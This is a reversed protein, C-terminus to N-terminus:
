ALKEKIEAAVNSPVEDYHNFFMSYNARGQTFSRLQNVYGFMNALPVMSEVVQANGRSDTGQIQGRRSNMDGIVDGLYEEPSVVEVKMIPELLKIGAKQAAERMGARGAIEFALASSDVDHYAGDYLTIEFDIIPFGILSGSEATERMGKEVSPIYEKPINGGKVEDKFIIGTGREGPKVTFKIRGFQGSGGSQKKHTYDIDVERALYERYAVQPAGVNAEVKFERRMRDVIIDLHLEGMGKIITQGSEHDTSVRFSPDEASLRNLAIGMKEQDAKTKPEVSLEIVPEPFEMRELIIPSREACLTDGTTTEKMGALAIIDGAFAEDVDKRENAHMELMRGVKEKKDKVSNLYTGKVLTGSYIRIFTLSGVFPDNMVKFALASFPADDAAPRSDPELSDMKVGQVDEIDLPSPLYDVVADLLPQVGKNKFASGCCVPVFSQNLTGKRILAKLTAVDPENGELYAEMAVDDQEVALEILDSRYKAAEDALDAPIDEYFFDAGLSEDKWIIARNHVLDVLGKLDAELGIPIYLVAPKAGLRDIISQVCYKFNAGTRDLKNIFCMRPVGYKDAQRWVTESQPEVGAVGDFCAVAGDLVRLSREVEITFDVHGPTDIINIRHDNWFCTTAASTITIGREQEQEMWDMTAAGDHVEGIKYSKGTYFLIRETTTTKGADIHAMIGINRYMNLPHSRAM